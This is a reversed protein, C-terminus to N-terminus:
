KIPFSDKLTPVGDTTKISSPPIVKQQTLYYEDFEYGKYLTTAIIITGFFVFYLGPAAKTIVVKIEKGWSGTFNGAEGLVGKIFLKYGMWTLALGVLLSIIKYLFVYLM